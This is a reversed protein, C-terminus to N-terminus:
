PIGAAALRAELVAIRTLARALLAHAINHLDETFVGKLQQNVPTPIERQAMQGAGDDAQITTTPNWIETIAPVSAAFAAEVGQASYGYNWDDHTQDAYKFRGWDVSVFSGQLADLEAATHQEFEPKVSIDSLNVNNASFNALGGNSYIIARNAANDQCRIFYANTDNPAAATFQCYAIVAAGPVANSNVLYTTIAAAATQAVGLKATSGTTSGIFLAGTTELRMVEVRNQAFIITSAPTTGIYFTSASQAEIIAQNNGTVGGYTTGGFTAGLAGAQISAVSANLGVIAGGNTTSNLLNVKAAGAQNQTIDLVNVPVMNIGVLGGTANLTLPATANRFNDVTWITVDAADKLIVKYSGDWYVVAEGRADLIIPNTNSAGGAADLYTARPTLTGADYTYVKYGVAPAGASTIFAVKPNPLIVAAVM